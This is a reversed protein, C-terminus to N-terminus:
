DRTRTEAMKRLRRAYEPSDEIDDRDAWIGILGERRWYEVLDGGTRIPSLPPVKQDLVQRAYANIPLGMRNAAVNMREELEPELDITLPM